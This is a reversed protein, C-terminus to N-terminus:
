VVRPYEVLVFVLGALWGALQLMSRWGNPITTQKRTIFVDLAFGEPSDLSPNSQCNSLM